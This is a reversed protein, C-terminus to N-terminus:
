TESVFISLSCRGHGVWSCGIRRWPVCWVHSADRRTEPDIVRGFASNSVIFKANEEQHVASASTSSTTKIQDSYDRPENIQFRSEIKIKIRRLKSKSEEDIQRQKAIKRTTKFDLSRFNNKGLHQLTSLNV